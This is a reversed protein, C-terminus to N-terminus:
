EVRGVCSVSRVGNGRGPNYKCLRGASRYLVKEKQNSNKQFFDTGRAPSRAELTGTGVRSSACSGGHHLILEVQALPLGVRRLENADAKMVHCNLFSLPLSTEQSFSCRVAQKLVKNM